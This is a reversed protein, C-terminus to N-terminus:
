RVLSCLKEEHDFILAAPCRVAFATPLLADDHLKLGPEIEEALEYGLYLFWGGHFPLPSDATDVREDSWWRDLAQLLQTEDTKM